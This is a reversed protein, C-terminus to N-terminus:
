SVTKLFFFFVSELEGTVQVLSQMDGKGKMGWPHSRGGMHVAPVRWKGPTRPRDQVQCRQNAQVAGKEGQQGWVQQVSGEYPLIQGWHYQWFGFLNWMSFFCKKYERVNRCTYINKTSEAFYKYPNNSFSPLFFSFYWHSLPANISKRRSTGTPPSRVWLRRKHGAWSDFGCGKPSHSMVTVLQAGQGPTSLISHM